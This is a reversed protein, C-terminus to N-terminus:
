GRVGNTLKGLDNENYMNNKPVPSPLATVKKNLAINNVMAENSTTFTSMKYYDDLYLANENLVNINARSCTAYFDELMDDMKKVRVTGTSDWWGRPGTMNQKGIELTAFDLSLRAVDVHQAFTSDSSNKVAEEAKDFIEYYKEMNEATLYTDQYRSPPTNIRLRLDTKEYDASITDIYKRIWPAAKGYYASLFENMTASFDIDPNWLLKSILYLRLEAFEMAYDINAQMFHDHVGNKVLNQVTTQLTFLNPYPCLYYWYDVIYTWQYINKAKEAWSAPNGACLMIQVNDLAKINKPPETSYWYALTSIMKDPFEKAVANVFPLITGQVGGEKEMVKTCLECQCYIGGDNQSVSWYIKDPQEKMDKKLQEIAITLVDPNSLCLQDPTRRGDVEAYYEPHSEFYKEAPVLKYFTHVYYGKAFMEDITTIRNWDLLDQDKAFDNVTFTIRVKNVSSDALNVFPLIIDKTEPVVKYKPSYLHCGLYSDLITVVGYVCGKSQGGNIFINGDKKTRIRYGDYKLGKVQRIYVGKRNESLKNVIPIECGSMEEIYKQFLEAGRQEQANPKEPVVIAYESKGKQVLVIDQESCGFVVLSIIAFLLIKKM